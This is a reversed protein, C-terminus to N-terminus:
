TKTKACRPSVCNQIPRSSEHRHEKKHEALIQSSKLTRLYRLHNYYEDIIKHGKIRLEELREKFRLAFFRDLWLYIFLTSVIFFVVLSAREITQDPNTLGWEAYFPYFTNILTVLFCRAFMGFTSLIAARRQKDYVQVKLISDLNDM